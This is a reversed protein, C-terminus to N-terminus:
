KPIGNESVSSVRVIASNSCIRAAGAACFLQNEAIIIDCCHSIDTTYLFFIGTLYFLYSSPVKVTVFFTDDFQM